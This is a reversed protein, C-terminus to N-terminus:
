RERTDIERKDGEKEIEVNGGNVKIVRERERM